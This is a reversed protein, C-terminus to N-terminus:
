DRYEGTKMMKALRGYRRPLDRAAKSDMIEEAATEWDKRNIAHITNQFENFTPVGMNFAMSIVVDARVSDLKIFWPYNRELEEVTEQLDRGFLMDAEGTTIGRGKTLLRGYGITPNGVCTYGAEIPKGTADDYVHLRLGEDEHLLEIIKNM